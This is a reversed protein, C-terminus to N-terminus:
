SFAANRVSENAVEMREAKEGQLGKVLSPLFDEWFAVRNGELVTEM